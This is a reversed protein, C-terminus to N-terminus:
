SERLSVTVRVGPPSPWKYRVETTLPTNPVETGDVTIGTWSAGNNNSWDFLTPNDETNASAVLNGSDDYARFFLKAPMSPSYAQRLRFASHSPIEGDRSTNDVSGEWNNSSKNLPEYDVYIEEVQAPTAGYANMVIWGVRIQAFNNIAFSSLDGIAPLDVWGGSVSDFLPDSETAATRYSYALRGARADELRVGTIAKLVGPSLSFVKSYIYSFELKSDSRLDQVMVGAQGTTASCVFARGRSVELSTIAFVGFNDTRRGSNLLWVAQQSGFNSFIQSNIWRKSFFNSAASAYVVLGMVESYQAHTLTIGTYDMGTGLTNVISATPLSVAGATIDTLRWCVFQTATPFFYCLQGANSGDFMTAIRQSDILLAAGAFGTAIIATKRSALHASTHQAYARRFVTGATISTANIAAGGATASLEFTNATLNTARVFYVAQATVTATFGTPANATIILPDNANYGHGTMTFTPSGSSTAATTTQSAFLVPAITLDFGFHQLSAATGNTLILESGNLGCGMISTINNLGGVGAPDQAMYMGKVDDAQGFFLQIPVGTSFDSLDLRNARFVGGMIATAATTGVVVHWNTTGTDIVRFFRIVGAIAPFTLIVRGAYTFSEEDSPNFNYLLLSATGGAPISTLLFLRNNDTFFAATPSQTSDTLTDIFKNLPAGLYTKGGYNKLKVNGVITTKTKDYSTVIDDKIGLKLAEITSM